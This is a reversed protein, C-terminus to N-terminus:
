LLNIVNLQIKKTLQPILYRVKNTQMRSKFNTIGNKESPFTINKCSEPTWEQEGLCWPVYTTQTYSIDGFDHQVVYIIQSEWSYSQITKKPPM